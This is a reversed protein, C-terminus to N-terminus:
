FNSIYVVISFCCQFLPFFHVISRNGESSIDNFHSGISHSSSSDDESLEMEESPSSFQFGSRLRMKLLFILKLIAM